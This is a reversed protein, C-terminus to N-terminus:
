YQSTIPLDEYPKEDPSNEDEEDINDWNKSRHLARREELLDFTKDRNLKQKDM